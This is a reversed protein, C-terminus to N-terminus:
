MDYISNDLNPAGYSGGGATTDGEQFATEMLEEVREPDEGGELRRIAEEMSPDKMGEGTIESMRRMLRGVARPDNEDIGEMQGMLHEVQAMTGPNEPGDTAADGKSKASSGHFAFGSMQKELAAHATDKPCAPPAKPSMTRSYFQYVTNCDRCLYEYIPM